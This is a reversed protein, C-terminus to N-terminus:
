GGTNRYPEGHPDHSAAPGNRAGAPIAPGFDGALGKAAYEGGPDLAHQDGDTILMRAEPNTALLVQEVADFAHGFADLKNELRQQGILIEANQRVIEAQQDNHRQLEAFIAQTLTIAEGLDVGMGKFFQGVRKGGESALAEKINFNMATPAKFGGLM